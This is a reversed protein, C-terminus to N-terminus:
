LRLCLELPENSAALAIEISVNKPFLRFDCFFCAAVHILSFVEQLEPYLLSLLNKNLFIRLKAKKARRNNLQYSNFFRVAWNM